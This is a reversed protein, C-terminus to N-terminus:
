PRNGVAMRACHFLKRVIQALLGCAPLDPHGRQQIVHSYRNADAPAPIDRGGGRLACQRGSGPQPPDGCRAGSRALVSGASRSGTSSSPSSSCPPRCRAPLGWDLSTDVNFEILQALMLDRPGGLIAPIVFFGLSITFVLLTGAMVGPLTMPFYVLCFSRLPDAGLSRAALAQNILGKPNVIIMWGYTRVLFNSWFPLLIVALLIAKGRASALDLRRALPYGILLCVATTAGSVWITRFLVRAYVPSALLRGYTEASASSGILMVLPYFFMLSLFLLAPGLLLITSLSGAAGRASV